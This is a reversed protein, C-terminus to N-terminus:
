RRGVCRERPLLGDGTGHVGSGDRLRGHRRYRPHWRRRDTLKWSVLTGDVSNDDNDLVELTWMGNPDEGIFDDLTAVGSPKFRGTFPAAPPDFDLSWSNLTGVDGDTTNDVIKLAGAGTPQNTTSIRCTTRQSLRVARTPKVMSRTLPPTTWLSWWPRAWSVRRSLTKETGDPSILSITLQSLDTDHSIDLNVKLDSVDAPVGDVDLAFLNDAGDDTIPGVNTSEAVGSDIRLAARQDFVTNTFNDGTGGINDALLVETGTPSILKIELDDVETHEINVEVNVGRIDTM